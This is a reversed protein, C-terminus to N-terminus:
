PRTKLTRKPEVSGAEPTFTCSADNLKIPDVKLEQLQNKNLLANFDTIQQQLNKWAGTTRKLNNCDSEWTAVQTSTPAIDLGVQMMSVMTNYANNLDMFSQIADPEPAPRRGPGGGGPLPLAGGIKTLSADLTKAQAAVDSPLSGKMLSALQVKVADVEDHGAFSQEMGRVSLLTLKNQTRLAAM